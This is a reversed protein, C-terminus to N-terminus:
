CSTCICVATESRLQRAPGSQRGYMAGGSRALPFPCPSGITSRRPPLRVSPAKSEPAPIANPEPCKNGYLVSTRWGVLQGDDEGGNVTDRGYRSLLERSRLRCCFSGALETMCAPAGVRVEM